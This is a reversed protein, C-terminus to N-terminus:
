EGDAQAAVKKAARTARCKAVYAAVQEPTRAAMRAKMREGQVARAGLCTWHAQAGASLAARGEPTSMQKKARESAAARAEPTGQVLAQRAAEADRAGPVAWRANASASQAARSEDTHKCGLRSGAAPATNFLLDAGVCDMWWQEASVLADATAPMEEVLAWVFATEGYKNYANQLKSTHHRNKRLAARHLGLRKSVGKGAHGIYVRSAADDPMWIAYIGTRTDTVTSLPAAVSTGTAFTDCPHTM